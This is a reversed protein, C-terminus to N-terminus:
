KPVFSIQRRHDDFVTYFNNWLPFGLILAHGCKFVNRKTNNMYGSRNKIVLNFEGDGNWNTLTITVEETIPFEKNDSCQPMENPIVIHRNGSGMFCQSNGNTCYDLPFPWFTTEKGVTISKANILWVGLGNYENWAKSNRPISQVPGIPKDNWPSVDSNKATNGYFLRGENSVMCLNAQTM